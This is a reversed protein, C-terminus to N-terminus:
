FSDITLCNIVENQKKHIKLELRQLEQSLFMPELAQSYSELQQYFSLTFNRLKRDEEIKYITNELSYVPTLQEVALLHKAAPAFDRNELLKERLKGIIEKREQSLQNLEQIGKVLSKHQTVKHYVHASFMGLSFSYSMGLIILAIKLGKPMKM